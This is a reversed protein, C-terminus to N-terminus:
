QDFEEKGAEAAGILGPEPQCLAPVVLPADTRRLIMGRLRDDLRTLLPRVNSLGGGVPVISAGVVNMVLALPPAILDLWLAVTEDAQTEGAQWDSLIATSPLAQGHLEHHLKELGRAGCVADVCGRLGCGCPLNWPAAVVPGHGWEGTYGGAGQVLRGDVVLGGGVGTGLIIGFVTRHGRGAGQRQEALAFCDADNLVLVPLRLAASLEDALARGDACPINAVKIRGSDPAVVGAVSIAVGRLSLGTAFQALAAQFAGFDSGPTPCDGLPTLRDTDAVAAKIRSGGIDFCLIM